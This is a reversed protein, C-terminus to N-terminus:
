RRLFEVRQHFGVGLSEGLQEALRMILWSAPRRLTTADPSCSLPIVTLVLQFREYRDLPNSERGAFTLWGAPLSGQVHAAVGAHLTPWCTGFSRILRSILTTTSAKATWGAPAADIHGDVALGHRNSRPGPASCLCPFSRRFVQSIGNADAHSFGSRRAAPVGVARAKFSGGAKRSRQPSCSAPPVARAASAFCYAVAPARIPLRLAKM